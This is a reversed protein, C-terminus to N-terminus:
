LGDGPRRALEAQVRRDEHRLVRRHRLHLRRDAVAGLLHEDAGPELLRERLRHLADLLRTRREDVGALVLAHYRPLARDPELEGLLEGLDAREHNGDAAAPEGGPDRDGQAREARLRPDDADLDAAAAVRDGVADGDLLRP